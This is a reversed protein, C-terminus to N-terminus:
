QSYRILIRLVWLSSKKKLKVKTRYFLSDSAYSEKFTFSGIAEITRLYALVKDIGERTGSITGNIGEAAILLTGKVDNDLMTNLILERYQEFDAFRTFKYLAAVAINNVKSDYVSAHNSAQPDTQETISSLEPSSM